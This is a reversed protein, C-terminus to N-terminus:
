VPEHHRGADRRCRRGRPGEPHTRDVDGARRRGTGETRGQGREKPLGRISDKGGAVAVVDRGAPVEGRQKGPVARHLHCAAGGCRTGRERVRRQQGAYVAELRGWDARGRHQGEGAADHDTGCRRRGEPHREGAVRGTGRHRLVQRGGADRGADGDTCRRRHYTRRQGRLIAQRGGEYARGRRHRRRRQSVEQGQEDADREPVHGHGADPKRRYDGHARTRSKQESRAADRRGRWEEKAM